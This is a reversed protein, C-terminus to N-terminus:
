KNKFLRKGTRWLQCLSYYFMLVFCIPLCIHLWFLSFGLTPFNQFSAVKLGKIGYWTLVVLLTLVMVIMIFSILERIKHQLKDVFFSVRFHAAKKFAMTAALFSLWVFMFRSLEEGFIIAIGFFRRLIVQSFLLVVLAIMLIGQALELPNHLIVKLLKGLSRNNEV